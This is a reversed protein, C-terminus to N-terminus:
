LWCPSHQASLFGCDRSPPATEQGVWLSGPLRPAPHHPRWCGHAEKRMIQTNHQQGHIQAGQGRSGARSDRAKRLLNVEIGEYRVEQFNAGRPNRSQGGQEWPSPKSLMLCRKNLLLFSVACGGSAGAVDQRGLSQLREGEIPCHGSARPSPGVSSAPTAAALACFSQCPQRPTHARIPLQCPGCPQLNLRISTLVPCPNPILWTSPDSKLVSPLSTCSLTGSAPKLFIPM